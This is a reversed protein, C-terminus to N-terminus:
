LVADKEHGIHLSLKKCYTNRQSAPRLALESAVRPEILLRSAITGQAEELSPRAVHAGRNAEHRVGHTEGLALLVKRIKGRSLDFTEALDTEVLRVGPALRREAIANVLYDFVEREQESLGSM